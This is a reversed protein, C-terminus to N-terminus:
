VAVLPVLVKNIFWFLSGGVASKLVLGLTTLDGGPRLLNPLYHGILVHIIPLSMIFVILAVLIPQRLQNLIDSYWNGKTSLQALVPGQQQMQMQTMMQPSPAYGNSMLSAFDAPTPYDKGIMHATATAPDSAIPYITNPNPSSIVRGSPAPPLSGGQLQGGQMVPNMGSSNMDALIKNVLDEDGGGPAPSKSDLDSLLTGATSMTRQM